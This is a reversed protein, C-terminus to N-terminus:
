TSTRLLGGAEHRIGLEGIISAIEKHSRTVNVGDRANRMWAPFGVDGRVHRRILEAHTLYAHFLNCLDVDKLSAVDLGSAARWLSPYCAPLPVGRTAAVSLLGWLLNAVGQATMGPAVRGAAAELATWAKAGPMRGLKAYAFVTNSVDQANMRPAVRVVAAEMAARAEGGPSRGLKSCAHVTNSVQQAMMDPGLRVVAAELAARAEAGPEWGLTAFAWWTNAMDLANMGPGVRV